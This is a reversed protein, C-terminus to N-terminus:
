DPAGVSTKAAASRVLKSLNSAVPLTTFDGFTNARFEICNTTFGPLGNRIEDIASKDFADTTDSQAFVAGQPTYAAVTSDRNPTAIGSDFIVRPISAVAVSFATDVPSASAAITYVVSANDALFDTKTIAMGALLFTFADYPIATM